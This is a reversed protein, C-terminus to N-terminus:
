MKDNKIDEKIKKEKKNGKKQIEKDNTEQNEIEQFAKFQEKVFSPKKIELDPNLVGCSATASKSLSFNNTASLSFNRPSYKTAQQPSLSIKPLKKILLFLIAIELIMLLGFFGVIFKSNTYIAKKNTSNKENSNINDKQVQEKDQNKNETNKDAIGTTIKFIKTDSNSNTLTVSNDNDQNTNTNDNNTNDTDQNTTDQNDNTETNPNSNDDPNNSNTNDVNISEDDNNDESSSSLYTCELKKNNCLNINAPCYVGNRPSTVCQKCGLINDCKYNRMDENCKSFYVTEGKKWCLLIPNAAAVVNMLVVLVFIMALLTLIIKKM